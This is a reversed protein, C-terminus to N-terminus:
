DEAESMKTADIDTQIIIEKPEIKVPWIREM